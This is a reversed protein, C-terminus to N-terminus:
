FGLRLCLLWAMSALIGPPPIPAWSGPALTLSPPLLCKTYSHHTGATDGRVGPLVAVPLHPVRVLVTLAPLGGHARLCVLLSLCLLVPYEPPLHGCTRQLLCPRPSPPVPGTAEEGQLLCM